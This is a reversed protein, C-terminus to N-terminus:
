WKWWVVSMSGSFSNNKDCKLIDHVTILNVIVSFSLCVLMRINQHSLSVQTKTFLKKFFVSFFIRELLTSVPWLKLDIQFEEYDCWHSMGVWHPCPSHFIATVSFEFDWDLSAGERLPFFSIKWSRVGERFLCSGLFGEELRLRGGDGLRCPLSSSLLLLRYYVLRSSALWLSTTAPLLGRWYSPQQSSTPPQSQPPRTSSTWPATTSPSSSSAPQQLPSAPM